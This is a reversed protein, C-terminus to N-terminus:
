VQSAARRNRRQLEACAERYLAWVEDSRDQAPETEALMRVVWLPTDRMYYLRGMKARAAAGVIFPLALIALVWEWALKLM